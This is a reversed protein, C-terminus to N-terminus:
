IFNGHAAGRSDRLVTVIQMLEDPLPNRVSEATQQFVRSVAPLEPPCWKLRAPLAKIKGNRAPRLGRPIQEESKKLLSKPFECVKAGLQLSAFALKV